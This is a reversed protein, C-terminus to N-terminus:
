NKQMHFIDSQQCNHGKKCRRKARIENSEIEPKQQEGKAKKEGKKNM